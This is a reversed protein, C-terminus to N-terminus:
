AFFVMVVDFDLDTAIDVPYVLDKEKSIVTHKHEGIGEHIHWQYEYNDLNEGLITSTIIPQIKITDINHLVNYSEELGEITLKNLETYNYNGEDEVCSSLCMVSLFLILTKKM